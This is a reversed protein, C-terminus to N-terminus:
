QEQAVRKPLTKKRRVAQLNGNQSESTLLESKATNGVGLARVWVQSLARIGEEFDQEIGLVSWNITIRELMCVLVESATWPDLRVDAHGVRQLRELFRAARRLFQERVMLRVAAGQEDVSAFQEFVGMFRANAIYFEATIRNDIYFREVIVRLDMPDAGNLSADLRAQGVRMEARLQECVQVGLLGFVDFRSDFYNYFTGHALRAAKAIDAVRTELYGNREFVSRAHWLLQSRTAAGKTSLVDRASLPVVVSPPEATRPVAETLHPTLGLINEWLLDITEALGEPIDTEGRLVFCVYATRDVMAGLLDSLIRPDEPATVEGSEKGRKLARSLRPNFRQPLGRRTEFFGPDTVVRQELFRSAQADDCYSQMYRRNARRFREALPLQREADDATGVAALIKDAAVEVVEELIQTKSSFYRYFAAPSLGAEAAIDVIRAAFLGDREFVRMAAAILDSRTQKGKPTPPPARMPLDTHQATATM